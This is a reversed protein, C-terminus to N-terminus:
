RIRFKMLTSGMKIEDGSQLPSKKVQKGNVFLGNTSRLDEIRWEKNDQIIRAHHRSVNPDNILVQNDEKRGLTVSTGTLDYKMGVDNGEVIELIPVDALKQQSGAINKLETFEERDFVMTNIQDITHASSEYVPEVLFNGVTLDGRKEFLLEPTGALHYKQKEAHRSIFDGLEARMEAFYPELRSFDEGALLVRYRHPADTKEVGQTKMTDMLRGVRHAIHKPKVVKKPTLTWLFDM